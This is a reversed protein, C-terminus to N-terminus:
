IGFIPIIRFVESLNGPRRVTPRYGRSSDIMTRIWAQCSSGFIYRVLVDGGRGSNGGDPGGDKKSRFSVRGEGGHGGKIIIEAEDVLM